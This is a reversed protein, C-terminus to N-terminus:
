AWSLIIPGCVLDIAKSRPLHLGTGLANSLYAGGGDTNWATYQDALGNRWAVAYGSATKEVGIPRTLNLWAKHQPSIGPDDFRPRIRNWAAVLEATDDM